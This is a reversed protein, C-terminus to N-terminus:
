FLAKVAIIALIIGGLIEAKAGLLNGFKRGILVAALGIIFTTIGIILAAQYIDTVGAVFGVGVAFADISTGIAQMFLITYTLKKQECVLEDTHSFGDKIMKAGIVGLIVFVVIGSYKCIFGSFFCGLFYGLLPMLAQFVAFFLPMAITKKRGICRYVMGNTMSVAAADMSLGIGIGIIEYLTM